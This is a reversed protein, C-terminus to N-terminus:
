STPTPEWRWAARGTRTARSRRSWCSRSGGCATSHRLTETLTFGDMGPMEVDAVVLDIAEEQLIRWAQHGDAALRVEYGAEELIAKELTRTTVSDDAVLLRRPGGRAGARRDPATAAPAQLASEALEAASLILAIGGDELLRAAPSTPCAACAAAWAPSSSTRSPWCSTSWSPSGRPGRRSWCWSAAKVATAAPRRCARPGGGALRASAARATAALMERGGVNRVEDPVLRRLGIVQTTALAFTRGASEVLLARILTVTLPVTLTFTTGAGAVSELGVTGHLANVQSKVVDLGVGRGSVATLARATSLGPHFVLALLDRDEASEPLGRARAEERIRQRDLGRGDDTIAIEM